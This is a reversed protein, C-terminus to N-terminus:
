PDTTKNMCVFRQVFALFGALDWVIIVDQNCADETWGYVLWTFIVGYYM